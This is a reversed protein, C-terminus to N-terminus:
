LEEIYKADGKRGCYFVGIPFNVKDDLSAVRVERAQTVFQHTQLYALIDKNPLKCIGTVDGYRLQEPEVLGIISRHTTSYELGPKLAMEDTSLCCLYDCIKGNNISIGEKEM